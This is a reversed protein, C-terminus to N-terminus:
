FEVVVKLARQKQNLAIDFAEDIKEFPMFDTAVAKVDISGAAIANIATPYSNRYRFTTMVDVEKPNITMFDYLVPETVNGVIVIVGGPKVLDPTQATTKTNGATEFVLDTGQGDTLEMVKKITDERSANITFDAGLKAAVELRNDFVDSMIVKSVGMAKISLLTMLGICGSGLITATQGLHARAREGAHLGVSLPEILAGELTSVNDPLKFCYAAPHSIYRQFAARHWPPCAMFDVDPCLNYQGSLCYHCKGCPVGPEVAVNDGVKLNKVNAGVGVVQGASEHGLIVPLKTDFRGGVNPDKYFMVDSGCIGCHKIQVLVDDPGVEPMACDRIEIKQKDILYAAQNQM